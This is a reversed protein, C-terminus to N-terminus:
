RIESLRGRQDFGAESTQFKKLEDPTIDLAPAERDADWPLIGSVAEGDALIGGVKLWYRGDKRSVIVKAQTIRIEMIRYLNSTSQSHIVRPSRQLQPLSSLAAFVHLTQLM